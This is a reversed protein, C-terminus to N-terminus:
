RFLRKGLAAAHARNSAGLARFLAALHMKVTGEAVNLAKAIQKNSKGEILGQLVQRQRDSLEAQLRPAGSGAGHGGAAPLPQQALIPPVYIEGSLVYRLKEVLEELPQSKVIYGHVGASLADLIDERADSGSLVVIRAEPRLRRLGAIDEPGSLGPMRLDILALSVDTSKVIDTVESFCAAECFRTVNLRRRLLDMLGMRYVAHDDAILVSGEFAANTRGPM